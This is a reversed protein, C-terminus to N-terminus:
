ETGRFSVLDNLSTKLEHFDEQRQRGHVSIVPMYCWVQCGTVKTLILQFLINVMVPFSIIILSRLILGM